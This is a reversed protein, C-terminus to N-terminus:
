RDGRSTFRGTETNRGIDTDALPTSIFRGSTRRRDVGPPGEAPPADAFRGSSRSRGIEADAIPLEGRPLGRRGRPEPDLVGAEEAFGLNENVRREDRARAKLDTDQRFLATESLEAAVDGVKSRPPDDAGLDFFDTLSM